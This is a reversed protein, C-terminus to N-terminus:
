HFLETYSLIGRGIGGAVLVRGDSLLTATHQERMQELSGVQSWNGTAPDYLECAFLDRGDTGGAVLVRGSTLLTATHFDRAQRLSGTMSWTGTAPDYLEATALANTGDSGGVALVRGDTLQAAAYANRAQSMNGTPSWTGTGPDYLEATALAAGGIGHGGAVLVRGDPLRTAARQEDSRLRQEVGGSPQRAQRQRDDVLLVAEADAHARRERSAARGAHRVEQRHRRCRDRATQRERKVAIKVRREQGLAGLM